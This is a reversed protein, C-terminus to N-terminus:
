DLFEKLNSIIKEEANFKHNLSKKVAKEAERNKILEFLEIHEKSASLFREKDNSFSIHTYRLHKGEFNKYTNIFLSNNYINLIEFHFNVNFENYEKLYKDAIPSNNSKERDYGTKIESVIKELNDLDGEEWTKAINEVAVKELLREMEYIDKLEKISLKSVKVGGSVNRTLFGEFELLKIAERLPTRSVQLQKSLNQEILREGPALDMTIIANKLTEYVIDATSMKKTNIPKLEM